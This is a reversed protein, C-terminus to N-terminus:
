STARELSEHIESVLRKEVHKVLVSLSALTFAQSAVVLALVGALAWGYHWTQRVIMELVVWTLLSIGPMMLLGAITSYLFIPNYRRALRFAMYLIELGHRWTALKEKGIRSRFGIPVETITGLAASQAALEIEAIFGHEEVNFKKAQETELLYMGSCVDTVKVGFLASFTRSIIWNGFRHLRNIQKRNRAGIVHSYHDTHNLLRWIDRPDYTYDGDIFVMYPTDVLEIATKVAGAKGVGHQFVVKVGSSDALEPTKDTSYGDVVLIKTYDNKQVEEIVKGIAEAENLTPIVVTIKDKFSTELTRAILQQIEL